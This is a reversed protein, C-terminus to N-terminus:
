AATGAELRNAQRYVDLHRQTCHEWTYAAAVKPGKGRLDASLGDDNLVSSLASALANTDGPPVLVAADDVVEEMASGTTTVLPAGCALAELAPLGFGELRSPYVVAESQRLLAALAEAPVYGPRMIQTAVGSDSIAERVERIGWGDRGALVLRLEPRSRAVQAFAHILDPVAKRPEMTGVFAVYPSRVGMPRLLALDSEDGPTGPHFREHDVGHPIVIVPGRPRLLESIRRATFASVAVLADARAAAARMMSRFFYVKSREHWEPHDFFSTDHITVVSPTRLRLPLTYHPAHWVDIGLTRALEPARTQEWLLRAPRATPVVAHTTATPALTGWDVGSDRTTLLHLEVDTSRAHGLGHVLNILYVGVGVPPDPVSSVDVLLRM